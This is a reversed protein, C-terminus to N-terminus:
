VHAKGFELCDHSSGLTERTVTSGRMDGVWGIVRASRVM